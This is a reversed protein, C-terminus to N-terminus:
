RASNNVKTYLLLHTPPYYKWYTGFRLCLTIRWYVCVCLGRPTQPRSIQLERDGRALLGELLDELVLLQGLHVFAGLFSRLCSSVCSSGDGSADLDNVSM